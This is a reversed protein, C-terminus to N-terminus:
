KRNRRILFIAAGLLLLGPLIGMTAIKLYFIQKANTKLKVDKSDPKSTDIPFQGNSFWSFLGVGIASNAPIQGVRRQLGLNSLFDANGAVIIRQSKGNINRSLALLTPFTAKKDGDAAVYKVEASDASFKKMKLWSVDPNTVLLSQIDFPGKTQYSLATAGKMSVLTKLAVSKELSRAIGAAAPTVTTTILDYALGKNGNNPLSSSSAGAAYQTVGYTGMSPGKPDYDGALDNYQALEGDMLQVGLGKIIPNIIAQKGPEGAVLLNGGADIYSQIKAQSAPTFATKPGAIVLATTNAPIDQNLLSISQTDFGQNILSQRVNIGNTLIGYDREDIPNRGRELESEVFVIQPLPMELRKVAAAVETESPYITMDDFLRLFTTRGKYKLQMVYRNNEHSLDVIKKIEEPTKFDGLNLQFAKAAREAMQKLSAQGHGMYMMHQEKGPYDYYYVYKLTINHKARLYPGWRDLDKNRREPLGNWIHNDLLNIYSTIELPEDGLEKLIKVTNPNLTFLKTATADFVVVFSPLSSFYGLFLVIVLTFMYPLIKKGTSIVTREATLKFYSFLLFMATILVFYIIDKSTLLGNILKDTRNTLSLFYTLNRVFDIRQWVEGVYNLAALLVLTSLAAVVQYSTLCSMFLGIASFTCILLFAGFLGVMLVGVDASQIAFAGIAAYISLIFTILLSYCVMSIFKGMIIQSVKVPSSYLLKITGSSTERSILGMTILPIYLYVKNLINAFLGPGQLNGFVRVTLFGLSSLYGDGLDQMNQIQSLADTFSLASQFIFIITLFWAIPSYFLTRLEAQAIKFSTRM